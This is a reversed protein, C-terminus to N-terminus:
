EGREREREKGGEGRERERERGKWVFLKPFLLQCSFGIVEHLVVGFHGEGGMCMLPLYGM